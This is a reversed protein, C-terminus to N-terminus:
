KELGQKRSRARSTHLPCAEQRCRRAKDMDPGLRVYHLYWVSSVTTAQDVEGVTLVAEHIILVSGSFVPCPSLLGPDSGDGNVCYLLMSRLGVCDERVREVTGTWRAFHCCSSGEYQHEVSRYRLDWLIPLFFGVRRRQIGHNRTNRGGDALHVLSTPFMCQPEGGTVRGTLRRGLRTSQRVTRTTIWWVDSFPPVIESADALSGSM